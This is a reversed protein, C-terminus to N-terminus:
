STVQAHLSAIIDRYTEPHGFGGAKTVIFLNAGIARSVPIGPAVEALVEFGRIGRRECFARAVDGGSLVVCGGGESDVIGDVTAVLAERIRRSTEHADWGRARGAALGDEVDRGDLAIMTDLGRAVAASATAVARAFGPGGDLLITAAISEVHHEDHAAFATIQRQTMASISGVVLVCAKVLEPHCLVAMTEDAPANHCLAAMTGDVPVNDPEDRSARGECAVERALMGLLGASGLWLVDDRIRQLAALARLDDDTEADAVAVRVGRARMRAIEDNLAGVGAWVTEPSLSGHPVKLQAAVRADRVPSFLDRGVDTQDVPTGRVFLVGDRVTRGQEPFAPCVIAFAAPLAELLARLEPALNGRLTSDMKKVVTRASMPCMRVLLARMRAYAQAPTAARTDLDVAVVEAAVDHATLADLWVTARLGRQAFQVAADSAGTLDDAVVTLRRETM